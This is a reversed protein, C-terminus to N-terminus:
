CVILDGQLLFQSAKQCISNSFIYVFSVHQREVGAWVESHIKSCVEMSRKGGVVSQCLCFIAYILVAKDAKMSISSFCGRSQISRAKDFPCFGVLFGSLAFIEIIGLM